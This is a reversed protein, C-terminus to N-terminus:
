FTRTPAYIYRFIRITSLGVWVLKRTKEKNWAQRKEDIIEEPSREVLDDDVELTEELQLGVPALEIQVPRETEVHRRSSLLRITRSIETEDILQARFFEALERLTDTESLPDQANKDWIRNVVECIKRTDFHGVGISGHHPLKKRQASGLFTPVCFQLTRQRPLMTFELDKISSWVGYRITTGPDTSGCLKWQACSAFLREFPAQHQLLQWGDKVWTSNQTYAEQDVVVLRSSVQKDSGLTKSRTLKALFMGGEFRVNSPELGTTQAGCHGGLSYCSGGRWSVFICLSFKM